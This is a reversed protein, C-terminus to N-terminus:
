DRIKWPFCRGNNGFRDVVAAEGCSVVSWQGSGGRKVKFEGWGKGVRKELHLRFENLGSRGAFGERGDDRAGESKEEAGKREEIQEAVEAMGPEVGREPPNIQADEWRRQRFNKQRERRKAQDIKGNARWCGGPQAPERGSDDAEEGGGRDPVREFIVREQKLAAQFGEDRNRQGEYKQGRENQDEANIQAARGSRTAPERERQKGREDGTHNAKGEGLDNAEALGVIAAGSVDGDDEARVDISISGRGRDKGVADFGGALKIAIAEDFFEDEGAAGAITGHMFGFGHAAEREAQAYIGGVNQGIGGAMIGLRGDVVGNGQEGSQLRVADDDDAVEIMQGADFHGVLTGAPVDIGDGGAFGM